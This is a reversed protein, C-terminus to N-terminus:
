DTVYNSAQTCEERLDVSYTLQEIILPPDASLPLRPFRIISINLQSGM